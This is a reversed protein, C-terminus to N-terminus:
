SAVCPRRVARSTRLNVPPAGARQAAPPATPQSPRSRRPPSAGAAGRCPAAHGRGHGRVSVVRRRRLQAAGELLLATVRARGKESMGVERLCADYGEEFVKRMAEAIRAEDTKDAPAKAKKQLDPPLKEMLQREGTKADLCNNGGKFRDWAKRDEASLSNLMDDYHSAGSTPRNVKNENSSESVASSLPTTVGSSPKLFFATCNAWASTAILVLLPAVAAPSSRKM